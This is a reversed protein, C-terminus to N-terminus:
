TFRGDCVSYAYIVHKRSFGVHTMSPRTSLLRAEALLTIQWSSLIFTVPWRLRQLNLMLCLALETDYRSLCGSSNWADRNQKLCHSSLYHHWSALDGLAHTYIQGSLITYRRTVAFSRYLPRAEEKRALLSPAPNEAPRDERCGTMVSVLLGSKTFM